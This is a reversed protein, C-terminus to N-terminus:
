ICDRERDEAQRARIPFQLEIRTGGRRQTRKSDHEALSRGAGGETGAARHQDLLAEDRQEPEGVRRAEAVHWRRHRVVERQATQLHERLGAHDVRQRRETDRQRLAQPERDAVLHADTSPPKSRAPGKRRRNEKSAGARLIAAVIVLSSSNTGFKESPRSAARTSRMTAAIAATAPALTSPRSSSALWWRQTIVSAPDASAITSAATRPAAAPLCSISRRVCLPSCLRMPAISTQGNTGSAPATIASATSAARRTPARM